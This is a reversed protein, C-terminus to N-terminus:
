LWVLGCTLAKGRLLGLAFLSFLEMVRNIGVFVADEISPGDRRGLAGLPYVEQARTGDHVDVDHIGLRCSGM